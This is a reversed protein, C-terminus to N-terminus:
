DRGMFSYDDDFGNPMDGFMGDTMADWTEKKLDFFFNSSRPPKCLDTCTFYKNKREEWPLNNGKEWLREIQYQHLSVIRRDLFEPKSKELITSDFNYIRFKKKNEIVDEYTVKFGKKFQVQRGDKGPNISLLQKDLVLWSANYADFQYYFVEDVTWELYQPTRYQKRHWEGGLLFVYYKYNDYYEHFGGFIFEGDPSYLDFVGDYVEYYFSECVGVMKGDRGGLIYGADIVYCDYIPPIIEIGQNNMCGWKADVVDSFFTKHPHGGVGYFIYKDLLKLHEYKAPLLETGDKKLLGYRNISVDYVEIFDYDEKINGDYEKILVIPSSNNNIGCCQKCVIKYPCSLPSERKIFRHEIICEYQIDAVFKKSFADYVGWLSNKKVCFLSDTLFYVDQYSLPLVLKGEENIIGYNIGIRVYGYPRKNVLNTGFCDIGDDFFADVVVERDGYSNIYGIKGDKSFRELIAM